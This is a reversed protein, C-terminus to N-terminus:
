IDDSDDYEEGYKEADAKRAAALKRRNIEKQSLTEEKTVTKEEGTEADTVVATTTVKATKPHKAKFEIEAQERLKEPNYFKQMLLTQIISFVYNVTWYFGVGAPVSFAIWLSFLPMIYLMVKMGGMGPANATEPNNKKNFYQSLLMSAASFLFSLVPILLLPEFVLFKPTNGFDLGFFMMNESLNQMQDKIEDTIRNSSNFTEPYKKYIQIALLEKQLGNYRTKVMSIKQKTEATLRSNNGLLDNAVTEQTIFLSGYKSIDEATITAPAKEDFDKTFGEDEAFAHTLQAHEESIFVVDTNGAIYEEILALDEANYENLLIGTIETEQAIATVSAIDNAGIHEMHTMPKYIVDIMGFLILMTLLMPGCGGAPNYGQQQLKQLEETQKERNNRYKQQIEKVKPAFLQSMAMNKQQKLTLPLMAVKVILTFIVIAWGFNQLLLYIPWM